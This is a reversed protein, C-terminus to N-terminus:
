DALWLSPNVLNKNQWLEFHIVTKGESKDTHISGLLQKTSVNDGRKVYTQELNSYVTFYDGHRLIVANNTPTIRNVSVVVGDFVARAESGATTAIDIGNNKITVKKLVPHPQEGYRSSIIGREVPWPLKGRNQTFSNSLKIEEPTLNSLKDPSSTKNEAKRNQAKRIEEAIISEIQRQLKLAEQEKSRIDKQLKKEQDSIKRVTQDVQKQENSLLVQQKKEDDFLRIKEEKEVELQTKQNNLQAQATTMREIQRKRLSSYQQLYKLRRYAQNFDDAAFLFMLKNLGNRNKNAFVLMKGYEKKLKSLENQTKKLDNRTRQLRSDTNQIQKQLTAILNQRKRIKAQLMNLENLSLMKSKKTEELLQNTLNIEEELQKKTNELETRKEQAVITQTPLAIWLLLLLFFLRKPQM